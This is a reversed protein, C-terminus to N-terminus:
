HEGKIKIPVDVFIKTGQGVKSDIKINGSLLYVREKMMSLGFGSNDDRKSMVIDNWDFGRGDDEIKITIGDSRYTLLIKILSASAHRIANSCAEQIIRILTIGVIPKVEYPEGEVSFQIKQKECSNLKELVREITVGLGIDDFMMPHLNYIVQRTGDIIDRLTKAIINLELKCRIPDMEVLKMCLESKHILSTLNQVTSDHLERSIRKRENEQTELLTIRYIDDELGKRHTEAVENKVAMIISSVEKLREMCASHDLKRESLLRQIERQEEKLTFIKEKNNFNVERPTFSKYNPDHSKDLLKIFEDDEKLHIEMDNIDKEINYKEQLYQDQIRELFKMVLIEM